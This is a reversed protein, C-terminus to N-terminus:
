EEGESPEEARPRVLEPETAAAEDEAVDEETRKTPAVVSAIPLDPDNLIRVRPLTVDSVRVSDGIDLGTVDVEFVDPIDRPFCEVELDYLVHDLVGGSTHVGLPTGNLRVPVQLRINEGAHVQLFDVHLIQPRYPHMQVERILVNETAGGEIDLQLITNEVSIAGVLLEMEHADLSLAQTRDGHGYLIAPLRGSGRLKRAVGKGSSDRPQAKLTRIAAMFLDEKENM